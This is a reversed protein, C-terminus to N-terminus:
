PTSAAFLRGQRAQLGGPPRHMLQGAQLGDLPANKPPIPPPEGDVMYVQAAEIEPATKVRGDDCLTGRTADACQLGILAGQARCVRSALMVRRRACPAQKPGKQPTAHVQLVEGFRLNRTLGGCTVRPYSQPYSRM